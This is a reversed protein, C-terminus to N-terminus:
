SEGEQLDLQFVFFRRFFVDCGGLLRSRQVRIANTPFAMANPCLGLEYQTRFPYNRWSCPKWHCDFNPDMPNQPREAWSDVPPLPKRRGAMRRQQEAPAEEPEFAFDIEQAHGQRPEGEPLQVEFRSMDETAM